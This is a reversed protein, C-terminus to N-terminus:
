TAKVLSLYLEWPWRVDNGCGPDVHTSKKWAESVAAHTTIGRKGALLGAADVHEVPINWRQCIGRVLEASRRMVGLGDEPGEGERDWQTKFAQGVQEIQIGQRNAGPAAWAVHKEEVCRFIADAGVVYHASAQPASPGAFWQAVSRAVGRRIPNETSHLVVLDALTRNAVTYNRAQIHTWPEVKPPDVKDTPQPPRWVHFTTAYDTHQSGAHANSPNQIKSGDARWWGYIAGGNAWHKGANSVPEGAWGRQKLRAWVEADHQECWLQSRMNANRYADVSAQVNAPVGADALQQMSPMTCPAIFLSCSHLADYEAISPLRWGKSKAWADAAVPSLRAFLQGDKDVIPLRSVAGGSPIPLWGASHLDCAGARSVYATATM